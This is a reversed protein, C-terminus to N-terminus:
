MFRYRVKDWKQRFRMEIEIDRPQDGWQGPYIDIGHRM